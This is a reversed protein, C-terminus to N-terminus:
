IPIHTRPHKDALGSLSALRRYRSRGEKRNELLGIGSVGGVWFAISFVSIGRNTGAAHPTASTVWECAQFLTECISVSLALNFPLLSLSDSLSDWPSQTTDM